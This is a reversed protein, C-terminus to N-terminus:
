EFFMYYSSFMTNKVKELKEKFKSMHLGIDYAIFCLHRAKILRWKGNQKHRGYFYFFEIIVWQAQNTMVTCPLLTFANLLTALSYKKVIQNTEPAKDRVLDLPIYM